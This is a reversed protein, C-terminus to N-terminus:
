NKKEEDDDEVVRRGKPKVLLPKLKLGLRLKRRRLRM